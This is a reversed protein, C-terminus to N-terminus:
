VTLIFNDVGNCKYTKNRHLLTEFAITLSM